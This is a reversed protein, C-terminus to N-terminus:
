LMVVSDYMMMLHFSIIALKILEQDHFIRMTMIMSFTHLITLLIHVRINPLLPNIKSTPFIRINKLYLKTSYEHQQMLQHSFYDIFGQRYYVLLLTKLHYRTLQWSKFVAKTIRQSTYWQIGNSVQKGQQIHLCLFIM